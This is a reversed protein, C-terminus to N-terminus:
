VQRLSVASQKSVATQSVCECQRQNGAEDRADKCKQCIFRSYVIYHTRDLGLVRRMGRCGHGVMNKGCTPCPVQSPVHSLRCRLCPFRCVGEAGALAASLVLVLLELLVWVACAAWSVHM